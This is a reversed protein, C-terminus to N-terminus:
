PMWKSVWRSNKPHYKFAWKLNVVWPGGWPCWMHLVRKQNLINEIEMPDVPHERLAEFLLDRLEEDTLPIWQNHAGPEPVVFENVPVAPDMNPVPDMPHALQPAPAGGQQQVAQKDGGGGEEAEMLEDVAQQEAQCPDAAWIQNQMRAGQMWTNGPLGPNNADRCAQLVQQAALLQRGADTNQAIVANVAQNLIDLISHVTVLTM